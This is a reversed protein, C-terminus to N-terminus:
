QELIRGHKLTALAAVPGIDNILTDCQPNTLLQRRPYRTAYADRTIVRIRALDSPDLEALFNNAVLATGMLLDAEGVLMCVDPGQIHDPVEPVRGDGVPKTVWRLPTLALGESQAQQLMSELMVTKHLAIQRVTETGDMWMARELTEGPKM